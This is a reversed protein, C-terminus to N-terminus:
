DFVLRLRDLRTRQGKITITSQDRDQDMDRLTLLGSQVLSEFVLLPQCMINHPDWIFGVKPNWYRWNQYHASMLKDEDVTAVTTLYWYKEIYMWDLKCPAYKHSPHELFPCRSYTRVVQKLNHDSKSEQTQGCSVSHCKNVDLFSKQLHVSVTM